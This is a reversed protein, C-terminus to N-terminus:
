LPLLVNRQRNGEDDQGIHFMSVKTLEENACAITVNRHYSARLMLMFMVAIDACASMSLYVLGRKVGLPSQKLTTERKIFPM